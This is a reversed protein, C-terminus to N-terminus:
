RIGYKRKEVQRDTMYDDYRSGSKGKLYKSENSPHYKKMFREFENRPNIEKYLKYTSTKM